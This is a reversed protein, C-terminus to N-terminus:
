TSSSAASLAELEDAPYEVTRSERLLRGYFRNVVIALPAYRRVVAAAAAPMDPSEGKRACRRLYEDRNAKGALGKVLRNVLETMVHCHDHSRHRELFATEAVSLDFRSSTALGFDTFYLRHGDTLINGFHADFHALGHASMFAVGARLQGETMTCAADVTEADGALQTALWAYLNQPIHELFIVVDASARAIQEFRERVSPLGGWFAITRTAEAHETSTPPWPSRRPLVRWHYMLPFSECEGALVWNTTMAHAALDRWVGLGPSGLGYQLFAPLDFLNATSMVHEPRRELDTLPIRKVFIPVSDVDMRVTTGGIGAGIAPAADVLEALRRDSTVALSNAAAAYRALRAARTGDSRATPTSM